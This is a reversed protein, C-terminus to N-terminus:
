SKGLIKLIALVLTTSLIKFMIWLILKEPSESTAGLGLNIDIILAKSERM